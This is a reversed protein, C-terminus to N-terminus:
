LRKQIKKLTSQFVENFITDFNKEVFSVVEERTAVHCTVNKPLKLPFYRPRVVESVPKILGKNNSM